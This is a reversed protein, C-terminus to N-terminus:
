DAPGGYHVGNGSADKWAHEDRWSTIGPQYHCVSMLQRAELAELYLSRGSRRNCTRRSLAEKPVEFFRPYLLTM